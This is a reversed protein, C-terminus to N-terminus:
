RARAKLLARAGHAFVGDKRCLPCRHALSRANHQTGAAGKATPSRAYVLANQQVCGACLWQTTETSCCPTFTNTDESCVACPGQSCTLQVSDRLLLGARGDENRESMQKLLRAAWAEHKRAAERAAAAEREADLEAAAETILLLAAPGPQARRTRYDRTRRGEDSLEDYPLPPRGRKRPERLPTQLPSCLVSEAPEIGDRFRRQRKSCPKLDAFAKRPRGRGRKHPTAPAVLM